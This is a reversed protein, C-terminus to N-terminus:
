LRARPKGHRVRELERSSGVCCLWCEEDPWCHRCSSIFHLKVRGQISRIESSPTQWFVIDVGREEIVIM